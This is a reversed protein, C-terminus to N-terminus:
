PVERLWHVLVRLKLSSLEDPMALSVPVVDSPRESSGRLVCMEADHGHEM